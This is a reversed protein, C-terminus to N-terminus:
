VVLSMKRFRLEVNNYSGLEEKWKFYSIFINWTQAKGVDELTFTQSTDTLVLLWIEYLRDFFQAPMSKWVFVQEVDSIIPDWTQVVGSTATKIYVHPIETDNAECQTEPDYYFQFDNLIYNGKGTMFAYAQTM